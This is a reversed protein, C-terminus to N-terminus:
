TERERTRYGVVVAKIPVASSICHFCNPISVYSSKEDCKHTNKFANPVYYDDPCQNIDLGLMNMSVAVIGRNQHNRRVCPFFSTLFFHM